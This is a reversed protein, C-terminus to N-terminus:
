EEVLFGREEFFAQIDRKAGTVRGQV